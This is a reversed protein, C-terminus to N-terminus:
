ALVVERGEATASLGEVLPDTLLFQEAQVIHLLAGEQRVVGLLRDQVDPCGWGAIDAHLTLQLPAVLSLLHEEVEEREKAPPSPLAGM